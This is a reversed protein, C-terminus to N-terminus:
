WSITAHALNVGRVASPLLSTRSTQPATYITTRGRIMADIGAGLGAYTATSFALFSFRLGPCGDIGADSSCDAIGATLAGILLGTVAGIITGNKLSDRTQVRQVRSREFRREEGDVLLVLAEPSFALLKGTTTVNDIDRVFVTTLTGARIGPWATAASADAPQASVSRAGAATFMLVVLVTRALISRIM